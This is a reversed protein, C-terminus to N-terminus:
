EIKKINKLRVCIRGNQVLGADGHGSGPKKGGPCIICFRAVSIASCASSFLPLGKEVSMVRQEV